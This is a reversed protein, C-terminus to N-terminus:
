EGPLPTAVLVATIAVVAISAALELRASRRLMRVGASTALQPTVRRWNWAGLAVVAGLAAMKLLLLQGYRTRWLSAVEDVHLWSAFVGTVALTAAATLAVPSFRRIMLAVVEAHTALNAANAPRLVTVVILCLTGLWAGAALLHAADATMALGPLLPSGAAHGSLAPSIALGAISLAAVVRLAPLGGGRTSVALLLALAVSVAQVLWARGWTTPIVFSVAGMWEAPADAFTGAQQVLRLGVLPVLLTLVGVAIAGARRRSAEVISGFRSDKTLALVIWERFVVTGVALALGTYLLGRVVAQGTEGILVNV